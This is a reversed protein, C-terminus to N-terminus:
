LAQVSVAADSAIVNQAITLGYLAAIGFGTAPCSLHLAVSRAQHLAWLLEKLELFINSM